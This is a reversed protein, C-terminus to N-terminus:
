EDEGGDRKPSRETAWESAMQVAAAITREVEADPVATMDRRGRWTMLDMAEGVLPRLYDECPWTTPDSTM